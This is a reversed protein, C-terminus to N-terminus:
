FALAHADILTRDPLNISVATPPKHENSPHVAVLPIASSTVRTCHRYPRLVPMNGSSLGRSFPPTHHSSGKSACHRREQKQVRGITASYSVKSTEYNKPVRCSVWSLSISFSVRSLRRLLTFYGFPSFNQPNTDTPLSRTPYCGGHLLDDYRRTSHTPCFRLM